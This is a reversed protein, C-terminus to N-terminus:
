YVIFQILIVIDFLTTALGGIIWQLNNIIFHTYKEKDIDILKILISAVFFWNAFNIIIFSVLSLGEVSKRKNNLIIQPIRSAMFIFTSAWGIIDAVLHSSNSNHPLSLLIVKFIVFLSTFILICIIEKKSLFQNVNESNIEELFPNTEELFPNTEELFPNTEELTNENQNKKRYYLIQLLFIIDFVIHFIGIYIIVSELDKAEASLVSFIDGIMWLFVLSFSVATSNKLKYNKYFSPLFVFLWLFTSINGFIWSLTGGTINM